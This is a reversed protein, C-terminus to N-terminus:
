ERVNEKGSNKIRRYEDKTVLSGPEMIDIFLRGNLHDVEHQVIRASFGSIEETRSEGEPTLYEVTISSSRGVKGYGAPVSLCGEWDILTEKSYRTIVPNFFADWPRGPELDFRQVWIVTRSVGVQPAAIGVGKQGIVTSVMRQLLIASSPDGPSLGASSKRLFADGEPKENTVLEMPADIQDSLVLSLEKETLLQRGSGPGQNMTACGQIVSAFFLVALVLFSYKM